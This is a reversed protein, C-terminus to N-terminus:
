QKGFRYVFGYTFGASNQLSSNFGTGYYEGSLRLSLNESVNTEGIIAGNFAYTSGDPFLGLTQPSIGNTDGSFNGMAIGGLAHASLSYKPRLFFRYTPGGMVAYESVAPRTLSFQNLGVYATGYYGRGDVTAGLKEGFYRTLATDWSYFNLRQLDPGPKYRLFGGGVFVEYLHDYTDHIAQARRQERRARIRAQVSVQGQSQAATPQTQDQPAPTSSSSADQSFVLPAAPLFLALTVAFRCFSYM